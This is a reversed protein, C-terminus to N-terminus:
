FPEGLICMKLKSIGEGILTKEDTDAFTYADFEVELEAWSDALCSDLLPRYDEATIEIKTSKAFSIVVILLILYKM